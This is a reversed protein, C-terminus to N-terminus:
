TFKFYQVYITPTGSVAKCIFGDLWSKSPIYITQEPPICIGGGTMEGTLSYQVTDTTSQNCILAASVGRAKTLTDTSGTSTAIEESGQAETLVPNMDQFMM